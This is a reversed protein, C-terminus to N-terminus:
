GADSGVGWGSLVLKGIMRGTGIQQLAAALNAANLRGGDVRLTSRLVGADVLRSVDALIGGQRAMDPTQFLSRTFIGEWHFGISKPRLLNMPLDASAEVLACIQAHPAAIEALQTFVPAPDTLCVITDVQSLRLDKLQPLLPAAHDIVHHAGMDLCHAHSEARSATAVVTNLTLTAALQIAMSGVGGAGGLVLLRGERQPHTAHAADPALRIREFLAEWAALSAAPLAASEALSLSAPPHAALRHDVRHLESFAGPRKISGAYYVRDGPQFGMVAPGVAEVVGAADWGLVRPTGDASAKARRMRLDIPNVAVAEVRVLLDDPLYAPAPLDVDILLPAGGVAERAGGPDVVIAKM